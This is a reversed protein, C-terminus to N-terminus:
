LDLPLVGLADRRPHSRGRDLVLWVQYCPEGGRGVVRVLGKDQLALLLQRCAGHSEDLHHCVDRLTVPGQRVMWALLTRLADPLDLLATMTLGQRPEVDEVERWLRTAM